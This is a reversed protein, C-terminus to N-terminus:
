GACFSIFEDLIKSLKQQIDNDTKIAKIDKQAPQAAAPQAPAPQAAAPQAAAPQAVAPQAVNGKDWPADIVDKKNEVGKKDWPAKIPEAVQEKSGQPLQLQQKKAMDQVIDDEAKQVNAFTKNMLSKLQDEYNTIKLAGEKDANFEFDYAKQKANNFTTKM